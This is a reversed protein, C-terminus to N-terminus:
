DLNYFKKWKEEKINKNTKISRKRRNYIEDEKNTRNSKRKHMISLQRNNQLM